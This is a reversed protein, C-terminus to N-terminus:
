YSAIESLGGRVFLLNSTTLIYAVLNIDSYGLWILWFLTWPEHKKMFNKQSLDCYNIVMIKIKKLAAM